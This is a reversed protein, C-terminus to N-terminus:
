VLENGGGYPHHAPSGVLFPGNAPGSDGVPESEPEDRGGLFGADVKEAWDSEADLSKNLTQMLRVSESAILSDLLAVFGDADPPDQETGDALVIKTCYAQLQAALVAKGRSTIYEIDTDEKRGFKKHFAKEAQRVVSGLKQATGSQFVLTLATSRITDRLANIKPALEGTVREIDLLEATLQEAEEDVFSRTSSNAINAQIRMIEKGREALTEYEESLTYMKAGSKQDLFVVHKFEPFTSVGSIYAQFNFTGPDIAGAVSGSPNQETM